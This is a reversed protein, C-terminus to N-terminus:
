AQDNDFVEITRVENIGKQKRQTSGSSRSPYCVSLDEYIGQHNERMDNLFEEIDAHKDFSYHYTIKIETKPKEHKKVKLHKM